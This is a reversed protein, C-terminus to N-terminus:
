DACHMVAGNGKDDIHDVQATVSMSHWKEKIYAFIQDSNKHLSLAAAVALLALGPIQLGPICLLLSGTFAVGWILSDQSAQQLQKKCKRQISQEDLEHNATKCATARDEKSQTLVTDIAVSFLRLSDTQPTKSLNANALVNNIMASHETSRAEDDQYKLTKLRILVDQQLEGFDATFQQLRLKKRQLAWKAVSNDSQALVQEMIAIEAQSKQILEDLKIIQAVSDALWYAPDAFRRGARISEDLSLVFGVGCGAAFMPGGFVTFSVGTLAIVTVGSLINVMGKVKSAIPRHTTEDTLQRAGVMITCGADAYNWLPGTVANQPLTFYGIEKLIEPLLITYITFGWLNNGPLINALREASSSVVDVMEQRVPGNVEHETHTHQSISLSNKPKAYIDFKSTTDAPEALDFETTDVKRPNQADSAKNKSM